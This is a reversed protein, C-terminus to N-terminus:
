GDTGGNVAKKARKVPAPAPAAPAESEKAAFLEPRELVVPHDSDFPTDTQLLISSGDGYGLWGDILPYVVQSM